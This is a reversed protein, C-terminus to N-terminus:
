DRSDEEEALHAALRTDTSRGTGRADTLRGTDREAPRTDSKYRNIM